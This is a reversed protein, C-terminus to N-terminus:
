RYDKVHRKHIAQAKKFALQDARQLAPRIVANEMVEILSGPSGYQLIPLVWESYKNSIDQFMSFPEEDEHIIPVFPIMYDPVTAQLELPSSRPNTIDVIVFRSMGVLTKITETFDRQTPKEFDFVIPVFNFERLKKRIADLVLKREPTFRGLILVGKASITDIVDRIKENHLLLDIFQAVELSDITITPEDWTTIRLNSQDSVGDLKVRWASVGYIRCDSLSAGRLDADVLISFELNTNALITNSLDAKRLDAESLNAGTLDAGSLNAECLKARWLSARTLNTQSLNAWLMNAEDLCSGSLNAGKLNAEVLDAGSLDVGSLDAGSLDAKKLDADRFDTNNLITGSLDADRLTAGSFSTWKLIANRFKSGWLNTGNFNADTLDANSFDTDVLDAPTNPLDGHAAIIDNLGFGSFDAGTLNAEAFVAGRLRWRGEPMEGTVKGLKILLAWTEQKSAM